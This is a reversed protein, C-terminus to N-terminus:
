LSGNSVGESIFEMDEQTMTWKELVKNFNGYTKFATIVNNWVKTNSRNLVPKQM